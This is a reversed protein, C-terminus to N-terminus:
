LIALIPFSRLLGNFGIKRSFSYLLNCLYANLCSKFTETSPSKVVERPLRNWYETVRLMFFNKQMNTHFKRREAKPGNSRIRDSHVVLLLRAEDMQRGGGKLYKYVDIPDERLRRKGVILLDPKGLREECLFHELWKIMKTARRQVGELLDRDKKSQSAWFQVRYELHPRVLASYLPIVSDCFRLPQFSGRSIISDLGETL